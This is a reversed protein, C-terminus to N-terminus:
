KEDVCIVIANMPPTLYLGVIDASKAAFDKDASICWSRQRSLHIGEKKLLRWIADTSCNLETALLPADWRSYGVPPTESIKKLVSENFAADYIVARGAKPQDELGSLGKSQYARRWFIVKNAYTRLEKAIESPQRGKSSEIVIYARDNEKRSINRSRIRRELELQDAEPIPYPSVKRSM